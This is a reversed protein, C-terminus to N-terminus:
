YKKLYLNEEKYDIIAACPGPIDAGVVGAVPIGGRANLGSIVRSFDM